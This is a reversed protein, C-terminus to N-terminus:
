QPILSIKRAQLGATPSATAEVSVYHGALNAAEIDVFTTATGYHITLTEKATAISFTHATVDVSGVKGQRTVVITGDDIKECKIAASKVVGTPGLSGFVAVQLENVLHSVAPCSANDLTVGTADVSVGRVKFDAVSHFDVITGHLEIEKGKEQDVGRIVVSAAKLVNDASYTGKIVIYAGPKLDILGKGQQTFAVASVDVKVGNM